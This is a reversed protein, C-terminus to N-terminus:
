LWSYDIVTARELRGVSLHSVPLGREGSDGKEGRDGLVGQICCSLATFVLECALIVLSHSKRILVDCSVSGTLYKKSIM